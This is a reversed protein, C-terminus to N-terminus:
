ESEWESEEITAKKRKSTISGEDVKQKRSSGATSTSPAARKVEKHVRVM